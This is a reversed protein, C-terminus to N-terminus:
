SANGSMAALGNRANYLNGFNSANGTSDASFYQITNNWYGTEGSGMGQGDDGGMNVFRPGNSCGSSYRWIQILDGWTTANSTTDITISDTTNTRSPAYGGMRWARTDNYASGVYSAPQTLDGFDTANGTTMATFYVIVNVRGPADDGGMHVVRTANGGGGGSRTGNPMYHPTMNGFNSANGTTAITVYEATNSGSPQGGMFLQRIGNGGSTVYNRQYQLDGFDTGNGTSAYTIYEIAQNNPDGGGKLGRTSSGGGKTRSSSENASGFNTANGTTDISFYDIVTGQNGPYEGSYGIARNGYNLEGGGGGAMLSGQVGGYLGTLGQLPYEKVYNIYDM